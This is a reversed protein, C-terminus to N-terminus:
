RRGQVKIRRLSSTKKQLVVHLVIVGKMENSNIFIINLMFKYQPDELYRAPTFVVFKKADEDDCDGHLSMPFM